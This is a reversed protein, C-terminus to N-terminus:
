SSYFYKSKKSQLCGNNEKWYNKCYVMKVEIDINKFSSNRLEEKERESKKIINDAEIRALKEERKIIMKGEKIAEEKIREVLKDAEEHANNVIKDAKDNADKIIKDATRETKKVEEIIKNLM